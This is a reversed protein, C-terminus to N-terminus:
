RIVKVRQAVLRQKYAIMRIITEARREELSDLADELPPDVISILSLLSSEFSMVAESGYTLSFPTKGRLEQPHYQLGLISNFPGGGM